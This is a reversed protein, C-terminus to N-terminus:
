AVGIYVFYSRLASTFLTRDAVEASASSKDGKIHSMCIVVPWIINVSNYKDPSRLFKQNNPNYTFFTAVLNVQLIPPRDHFLPYLKYGKNWSLGGM